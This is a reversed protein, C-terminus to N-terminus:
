IFLQNANACYSDRCIGVKCGRCGNMEINNGPSEVIGPANMFLPQMPETPFPDSGMLNVPAPLASHQFSVFDERVVQSANKKNLGKDLISNMKEFKKDQDKFMTASQFCSDAGMSNTCDRANVQNATLEPYYMRASALRSADQGGALSGNQNSIDRVLTKDADTFTNQYIVPKLPNKTMSYYEQMSQILQTPPLGDFPGTQDKENLPMIDPNYKGYPTRESYVDAFNSINVTLGRFFGGSKRDIYEAITVLIVYAIVIYIALSLYSKCNCGYYCLPIIVICSILLVLFHLFIDM